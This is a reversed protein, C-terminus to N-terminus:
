LDRNKNILQRQGIEVLKRTMMGGVPGATLVNINPLHLHLFLFVM